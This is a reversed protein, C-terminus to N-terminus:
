KSSSIEIFLDNDFLPDFEKYKELPLTELVFGNKICYGVIVITFVIFCCIAIWLFLSFLIKTLSITPRYIHRNTDDCEYIQKLALHISEDKSEAIASIHKNSCM